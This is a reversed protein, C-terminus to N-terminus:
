QPSIVRGDDSTAERAPGHGHAPLLEPDTYSSSTLLKVLMFGICETRKNLGHSTCSAFHDQHPRQRLMQAAAVSETHM